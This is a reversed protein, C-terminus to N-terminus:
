VRPADCRQDDFGEIIHLWMIENHEADTWEPQEIKVPETTENTTSM